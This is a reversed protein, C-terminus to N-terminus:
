RLTACAHAFLVTTGVYTISIASLLVLAMMLRRQFRREGEHARHEGFMHALRTQAFAILVLVTLAILTAAVVIAEISYISARPAIAFERACILSQSFYVTTFHLAWVIPGLLLYIITAPTSQFRRMKM